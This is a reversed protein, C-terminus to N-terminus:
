KTSQSTTPSKKFKLKNSSTAQLQTHSKSKPNPKSKKRPKQGKHKKNKPQRQKNNCAQKHKNDPKNSNKLFEFTLAATKDKQQADTSSLSEQKNIEADWSSDSSDPILGPMSSHTSCESELFTKM